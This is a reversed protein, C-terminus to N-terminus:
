PEENSSSSRKGSAKDKKNIKQLKPPSDDSGEELKRKPVSEPSPSRSSGATKPKKPERASDKASEPDDTDTVKRKGKLKRKRELEMEEQSPEDETGVHKKSKEAKEDQKKAKDPDLQSEQDVEM